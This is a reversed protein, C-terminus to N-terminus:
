RCQNELSNRAAFGVQLFQEPTQGLTQNVNPVVRLVRNVLHNGEKTVQTVFINGVANRNADLRM